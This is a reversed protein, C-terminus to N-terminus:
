SWIHSPLVAYDKRRMQTKELSREQGVPFLYLLGSIIFHEEEVEAQCPAFPVTEVQGSGRCWTLRLSAKLYFDRPESVMHPGRALLSSHRGTQEGQLGADQCLGATRRPVGAKKGSLSPIQGSWM